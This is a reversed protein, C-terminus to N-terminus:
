KKEPNQWCPKFDEPSYGIQYFDPEGTKIRFRFVGKSNIRASDVPIIEDVNVRSIYISKKDSPKLLGKISVSNRKSCGAIMLLPILLIFYKKM